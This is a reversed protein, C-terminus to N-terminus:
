FVDWGGTGYEVELKLNKFLWELNEQVCERCSTDVLDQPYNPKVEDRGLNDQDRVIALTLSDGQIGHYKSPYNWPLIFAM